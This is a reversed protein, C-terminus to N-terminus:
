SQSGGKPTNKDLFDSVADRQGQDFDPRVWNDLREASQALEALERSILDPHPVDKGPMLLIPLTLRKVLDHHVSFVFGSSWMNNHFGALVAPDLQRQNATMEEAWTAFKEPYVEPHEPNFGAPNQLVASVIRSPAVESLKLGFSCGISAGVVHFRECGLHDMVALQDGAFTHWGHDPSVEGKSRGANRQDMAVVRYHDALVRTWDHYHGFRNGPEAFWNSLVSGMGGPALLLVPFGTGYEEFYIEADDRILVSM